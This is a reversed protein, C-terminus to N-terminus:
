WDSFASPSTGETSGMRSRAYVQILRALLEAHDPAGAPPPSLTLHYATGTVPDTRRGSQYATIHPPCIPTRALCILSAIERFSSILDTGICFVCFNFHISYSYFEADFGWFPLDRVCRETAVENPAVLAVFVDPILKAAVMAQAQATNKPFGDLLWGREVCDAQAIRDAIAQM